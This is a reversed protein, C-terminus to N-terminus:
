NEVFTTKKLLWKGRQFVVDSTYTSTGGPGAREVGGDDTAKYGTIAAYAKLTGTRGDVTTGFSGFLHQSNATGELRGFFNVINVWPLPGAPIWGELLEPEGKNNYIEVVFDETTCSRFLEYGEAFNPDSMNMPDLYELNDLDSYTATVARAIADFSYAYCSMLEEIEAKAIARDKNGGYGNNDAAATDIFGIVCITALLPILITSYAKSRM